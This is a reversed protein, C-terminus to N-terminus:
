MMEEFEEVLDILEEMNAKNVKETIFCDYGLRKCESNLFLIKKGAIDFFRNSMAGREEDSSEVIRFASRKYLDTDEKALRRIEAMYTFRGIEGIVQRVSEGRNGIQTNEESIAFNFFSERNIM